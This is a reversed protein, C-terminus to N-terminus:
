EIVVGKALVLQFFLLLLFLISIPVLATKHNIVNNNVKGPSAKWAYAWIMPVSILTVMFPMIARDLPMIRFPICIVAGLLSGLIIIGFLYRFKSFANFLTSHNPSIRLFIKSYVACIYLMLFTCIISILLGLTDGIKLYTFAQGTDTDRAIFATIFQPLSQAFGQFSLWVLFVYLWSTQKVVKTLQFVIVGFILIALAGLGQALGEMPHTGDWNHNNHYLYARLGLWKKGLALFLEQIFFILNFSLAYLVASNFVATSSAWNKNQNPEKSSNKNKLYGIVGYFIPVVLLLFPIFHFM